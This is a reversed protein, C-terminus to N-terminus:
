ILLLFTVSTDNETGRNFHGRSIDHYCISLEFGGDHKLFYFREAASCGVCLRFSDYQDYDKVTHASTM